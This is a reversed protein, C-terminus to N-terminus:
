INLVSILFDFVYVTLTRNFPKGITGSEHLDLRAPHYRKILEIEGEYFLIKDIIKYESFLKSFVLIKLDKAM